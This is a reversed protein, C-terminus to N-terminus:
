AKGVKKLLGNNGDDGMAKAVARTEAIYVETEGESGSINKACNELFMQMERSKLLERVGSRNLTVKIKSM